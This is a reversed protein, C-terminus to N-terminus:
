KDADLSTACASVVNHALCAEWVAQEKQVIVPSVLITTVLILVGVVLVIGGLLGVWITAIKVWYEHDTM